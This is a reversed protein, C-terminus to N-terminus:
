RTTPGTGRAQWNGEGVASLGYRPPDGELRAVGGYTGYPSYVPSGYAYQAAPYAPLYVPASPYSYGYTVPAPTVNWAISAPAQSTTPATTPAQSLRTNGAAPGVATRTVNETEKLSLKPVAVRVTRTEPIYSRQTVPLKQNVVNTQWRTEPILHYAIHPGQFIRWWGHTRPEWRYQTVPQYVMQQVDHMQTQYQERYYTQQQNEYEIERVPQKVTSRTERYTIGGEEYYRVDDAGCLAGFAMLFLAGLCGALVNRVNMTMAGDISKAGVGHM